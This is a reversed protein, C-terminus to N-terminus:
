AEFVLLHGVGPVDRRSKPKPKRVVIDIDHGLSTLFRLLRETSFQTLRGRLLESVKPQDIGLLRGAQVQTLGMARITRAILAALESKALAEGAEAVGLDEFVNGSSPQSKAKTTMEDEQRRRLRPASETRM